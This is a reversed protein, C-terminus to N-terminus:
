GRDIPLNLRNRSDGPDALVQGAVTRAEVELGIRRYAAAPDLGGRRNRGYSVAYRWAFRVVGLRRWQDVHVLEHVILAALAPAPRRLAAEQVYVGWPLTIAAYRGARIHPLWWPARRM